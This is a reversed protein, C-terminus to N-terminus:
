SWVGSRRGHRGSSSLLHLRCYSAFCRSGVGCATSVECDYESGLPWVNRLDVVHRAVPASIRLDIGYMVIAGVILVVELIIPQVILRSMEGLVSRVHRSRRGSTCRSRRRRNRSRFQAPRHDNLLVADGAVCVRLLENSFRMEMLAFAFLVAHRSRVAHDSLSCKRGNSLGFIKPVIARVMQLRSVSSM